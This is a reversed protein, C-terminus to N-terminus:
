ASGTARIITGLFNLYVVKTTRAFRAGIRRFTGLAEAGEPRGAFWEALMAPTLEIHFQLGYANPGSRFAQHPCRDGEALLVGGDPIDFTDGHWQFVDLNEGVGSFLPDSMGEPTLRVRSFGAEEVPAKGVKAGCAKALLQAGLCIGLVPVELRLAQRLFADEERLFPYRDEEYVNMPGGMSIVAAASGAGVPLAVGKSLDLTVVDIGHEELFTGLTGLGENAAHKLVLVHM